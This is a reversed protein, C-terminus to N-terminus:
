TADGVRSDSTLAFLASQWAGNSRQRQWRGMSPAWRFGASKLRGRIEASPKGPFDICTRNEEVDEYLKWGDGELRERGPTEAQDELTKIRERLRRINAGLNSLVYAPLRERGQKRAERNSAKLGERKTELEVIRERIKEVADPDDSSIGGSGVSEARSALDQARDAADCGARMNTDHRRLAARHRKESHHGVLIPQGPPIGAISGRARDFRSDSEQKARDAARELRERRAEQKQEYSNM